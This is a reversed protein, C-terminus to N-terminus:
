PLYDFMDVYDYAAQRDGAAWLDANAPSYAANLAQPAAGSGAQGRAPASGFQYEVNARVKIRIFWGIKIKYSVRGRGSLRGEKYEAQLMLSLSVEVLGLLSVTGTFLIMIGMSLSGGGQYEATVGFYAYIGGSIPGLSIAMGASALLAVSLHVQFRHQAPTYSVSFDVWGAGGLVFVTLTFPATKRGVALGTLITFGGDLKLGFYFSLFLNAFGFSGMQVDPLPLSLNTFVGAPSISTSLGSDSRGMAEVAKSIFELAQQLQVRDPSIDFHLKGGDDFRLTTKSLVVLPLSGVRLDWNGSIEGQARVRPASGVPTTVDVTARLRAGPLLALTIGALAFLPAGEAFVLELDALVRKSRTQPDDTHQVRIRNPPTNLDPMKVQALLYRLPLGALNALVQNVDVKGNQLAPVLIDTIERTPFQLNLPLLAQAGAVTDDVLQHVADGVRAKVETLAVQKVAKLTGEADNVFAYAVAALDRRGFDLGPVEPPLGYARLLTFATEKVEERVAEAAATALARPLAEMEAMMRKVESMGAQLYAQPNFDNVAATLATLQAQNATFYAMLEDKRQVAAGLLVEKQATLLGEARALVAQQSAELYAEAATRLAGPLQAPTPVAALTARLQAALPEYPALLQRAQTELEAQISAWQQTLAHQLADGYALVAVTFENLKGDILQRVETASTPAPLAHLQQRLKLASLRLDSTPAQLVRQLVTLQEGLWHQGLASVQSLLGAVLNHVQDAELQLLSLARAAARPLPTTGQEIEKALQHLADALRQQLTHDGRVVTQLSDRLQTLTALSQRLEEAGNYQEGLKVLEKLVEGPLGQPGDGAFLKEIAADVAARSQEPAEDSVRQAERLLRDLPGRVVGQVHSALALPGGNDDKLLKHLQRRDAETDAGAQALRVASARLRQDVFQRLQPQLDATFGEFARTAQSVLAGAQQLKQRLLNQAPAGWDTLERTLPLLASLAQDAGMQVQELSSDPQHVRQTLPGRMITVTHLPTVVARAQRGSVLDLPRAVGLTLTFRGLGPPIAPPAFEDGSGPGSLPRQVELAGPRLAEYDVGAIAGWASPPRSDTTLTFFYLKEPDEVPCPSLKAGQDGACLLRVEPKPYVDLPAAGPQWLPVQWGITGVDRGWRSSVRIRPPQGDPSPFSAVRALGAALTRREQEPKDLDAAADLGALSREREEIEVYEETKRLLPSGLFPTQVEAFQRSPAVTREYVIVHRAQNWFHSIRGLRQLHLRTIRGQALSIILTTNGGDFSASLEATGGLPSLLLGVLEAEVALPPGPSQWLRNYVNASEFAWAYSGRLGTPSHPLAPGQTPPEGGPVPYALDAERDLWVKLGDATRVRWRTAEGPHDPRGTPVYPEWLAPRSRLATRLQQWGLRYREYRTRQAEDSTRWPLRPPLYGPVAGLRAQIETLRLGPLGLECVIGYVLEVTLREVLAGPTGQGAYGLRRRLDWPLEAFRQGLESGYLHVVAPRTFRADAPRGAEVDQADTYRHMAEGIGQPPLHLEFSQGPLGMNWGPGEGPRFGYNAIEAAEGSSQDAARARVRVLSFPEFDLVFVDTALGRATQRALSMTLNHSRERTATEEVSLQFPATDTAPAPTRNIVLVPSRDVGPGGEELSLAFDEGTIDDQGGPGIAVVPMQLKLRLYLLRNLGVLEEVYWEGRPRDPPLDEDVYRVRRLPGEQRVGVRVHVEHVEGKTLLHSGLTPLAPLTAALGQLRVEPGATLSQAQFTQYTFGTNFEPTPQLVESEPHLWETLAAYQQYVAGTITRLGPFRLITTTVNPAPASRAPTFLRGYLTIRGPQGAPREHSALVFDERSLRSGPLDDVLLYSATWAPPQNAPSPPLDSPTPLPLFTANRSGEVAEMSQLLVESVARQWWQQAVLGPVDVELRWQARGAGDRLPLSGPQRQRIVVQQWHGRIRFPYL